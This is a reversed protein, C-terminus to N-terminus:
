AHRFDEYQKREQADAKWASIIRITSEHRYAHCVVLIRLKVSMGLLVYRDEDDSHDPDAILRASEDYFVTQAEEFSVGHKTKNRAAKKPDWTFSLREM